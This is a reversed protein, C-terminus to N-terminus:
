LRFNKYYSRDSTTMKVVYEGKETSSLGYIRKLYISGSLKEKHILQNKYYVEINLPQLNTALQSIMLKNGEIKTVPPYIVEEESDSFRVENSAVVFQKLVIECGKDLEVIYSGDKLSNMDFIRQYEGNTKITEQYLLVDNLDKISLHNGKKVDQFKIQTLPKVPNKDTENSFGRATILLFTVILLNRLTKM